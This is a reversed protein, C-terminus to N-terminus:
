IFITKGEEAREIELDDKNLVEDSMHTMILRKTNLESQKEILKSYSTHNKMDGYYNFCECIFIDSKDAIHVLNETWESDGSYGIVKNKVKVRIGHPNSGPAHIVPWMRVELDNLQVLEGEKVEKFHIDFNYPITTSGKYLGEMIEHIREQIGEPGVITLPETRNQILQADLFLFPLGGFHDGHFHSIIITSIGNINIQYKKLFILASAGCDILFNTQDSHVYFCTTGRGGSGFADGTGIFQLTSKSM